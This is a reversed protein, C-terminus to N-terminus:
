KSNNSDTKKKSQEILRELVELYQNDLYGIPMCGDPYKIVINRESVDIPLNYKKKLEEASHRRVEVLNEKIRQEEEILTQIEKKTLNDTWNDWDRLITNVAKPDSARDKWRLVRKVLLDLKDRHERILRSKLAKSIKLQDLVVVVKDPKPPELETAKNNNEETNNYTSNNSPVNKDRRPSMKTGQYVKKSVGEKETSPVFIDRPLCNKLYVKRDWLFGRKETHIEIYGSDELNKFWRKVTRDDVDYLDAFYNNKAWCYGKKNCLATIEGYLLKANACLSKDYRVNATIVAYYAPEPKQDKM